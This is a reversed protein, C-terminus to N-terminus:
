ERFGSRLFKPSHDTFKKRAPPQIFEIPSSRRYADPALEPTELIDSTYPQNYHAWDTVPRLAAGCALMEPKKFMSMLVLFGGYSGGWAGVRARDVGHEKALYEICDALDELEPGGMNRHIATRWASGYGASGRYDPDIVVHGERTLISAFMFERFYGSWGAHADQLYGAGHIFIVASGDGSEPLYVRSRIAGAGHRSPVDVFRPMTWAIADFAPTTSHTLRRAMGGPASDCLYLEPPELATSHTVVLQTEDPSLLFANQGGLRTVQESRGTAIEVRHIEFVSPDGPNATYYLFRGDRTAAVHEVCQRGSTLQRSKTGSRLYLQSWGSEESLYWLAAPSGPLWGLENFDWSIWAPDRLRHMPVLRGAALDVEAIWRDKNDIARLLLAVQNGDGSWHVAQGSNDGDTQVRM